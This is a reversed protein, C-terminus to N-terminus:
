EMFRLNEYSGAAMHFKFKSLVNRTSRLKKNQLRIKLVGRLPPFHQCFNPLVSHDASGFKGAL